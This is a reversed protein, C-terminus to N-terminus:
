KLSPTRGLITVDQEPVDDISNTTNKWKRYVNLVSLTWFPVLDAGPVLEAAFTPLFEWQWGLLGVLVAAVVVDLADDAPSFGGEAFFPFVLIQLADAAMALLMAAQFRSRPSLTVPVEFVAAKLATPEL